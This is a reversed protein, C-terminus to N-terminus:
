HTKDDEIPALASDWKRRLKAILKNREYNLQETEDTYM